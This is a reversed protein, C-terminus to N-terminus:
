PDIPCGGLLEGISVQSAHPFAIGGERRVQGLITLRLGLRQAAYSSATPRCPWHRGVPHGAGRPGQPDDPPQSGHGNAPFAKSSSILSDLRLRFRLYPSDLRNVPSNPLVWCSAIV